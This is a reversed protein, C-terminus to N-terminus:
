FYTRMSQQVILSIKEAFEYSKSFDITKQPPIIKISTTIVQNCHCIIQPNPKNNILSMVSSLIELCGRHAMFKCAVSEHYHLKPMLKLYKEQKEGKQYINTKRTYSKKCIICSNPNKSDSITNLITRIENARTTGSNILYLMVYVYQAIYTFPISKNLDSTKMESSVELSGIETRSVEAITQMIWDILINDDISSIVPIPKPVIEKDPSAIEKHLDDIMRIGKLSKHCYKCKDNLKENKRACFICLKVATNSKSRAEDHNIIEFGLVNDLEKNDIAEDLHLYSYKPDDSGLRNNPNIRLFIRKLHNKSELQRDEIM